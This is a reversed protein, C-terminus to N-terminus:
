HVVSLVSIFYKPEFIVESTIELCKIKFFNETPAGELGKHM